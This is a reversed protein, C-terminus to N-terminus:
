RASSRVAERTDGVKWCVEGYRRNVVTVSLGGRVRGRVQTIGFLGMKPWKNPNGPQTDDVYKDVWFRSNFYSTTIHIISHQQLV